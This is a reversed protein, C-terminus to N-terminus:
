PSSASFSLWEKEQTRGPPQVTKIRLPATKERVSAKSMTHNTSGLAEVSCARIRTRSGTINNEKRSCMEEGHYSRSAALIIYSKKEEKRNLWEQTTAM